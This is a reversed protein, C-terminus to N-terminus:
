DQMKNSLYQFPKTHLFWDTALFVSRDQNQIVVVSEKVEVSVTQKLPKNVFSFILSNM